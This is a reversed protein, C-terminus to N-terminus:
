ERNSGSSRHSPLELTDPWTSFGKDATTTKCPEPRSTKRFINRARSVMYVLITEMTFISTFVNRVGISFAAPLALVHFACFLRAQSGVTRNPLSDNISGPDVKEIM